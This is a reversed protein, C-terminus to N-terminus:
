RVYKKLEGELKSLLANIKDVDAEFENQNKDIILRTELILNGIDRQLTQVDSRARDSSHEEMQQEVVQLDVILGVGNCISCSWVQKFLAIGARQKELSIKGEM